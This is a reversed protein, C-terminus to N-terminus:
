FEFTGNKKEKRKITPSGQNIEEELSFVLFVMPRQRHKVEKILRFDIAEYTVLM